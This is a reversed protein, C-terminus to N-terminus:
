LNDNNTQRTIHHLEISLHHHHYIKCFVLRNSFLYHLIAPSFSFSCPLTDGLNSRNTAFTRVRWVEIFGLEHQWDVVAKYLYVTKKQTRWKFVPVCSGDPCRFLLEDSSRDSTITVFHNIVFSFLTQWHQEM